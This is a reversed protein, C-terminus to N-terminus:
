WRLGETTSPIDKDYRYNATKHIEITSMPGELDKTLDLTGSTRVM